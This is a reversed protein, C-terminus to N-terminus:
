IIETHYLIQIVILSYVGALVDDLMVSWNSKMKDIRRIYFPKSIDFLRFLALAFLYYEWELPMAFIAIWVGAVEDIVIQPADHEWVRHVKKISYNGIAIVFIIAFLNLIHVAWLGINLSALFYNFLYILLIGLISGATGPAFPSFGTGLGSAIVKHVNM